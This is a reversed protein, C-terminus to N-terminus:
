HIGRELAPLKEQLMFTRWLPRVLYGKEIILFNM